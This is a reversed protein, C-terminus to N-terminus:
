GAPNKKKLEEKLDYATVVSLVLFLSRGVWEGAGGKGGALAVIRALVVRLALGASSRAAAEAWDRLVDVKAREEVLKVGEEVTRKLQGKAKSYDPEPWFTIGMRLCM